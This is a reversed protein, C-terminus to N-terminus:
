LVSGIAKTIDQTYIKLMDLKLGKEALCAVLQVGKMSDGGVEFFNDDDKVEDVDFVTKWAEVFLDKKEQNTM